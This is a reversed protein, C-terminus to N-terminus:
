VSVVTPLREIIATGPEHYQPLQKTGSDISFSEEKKSLKLMEQVSLRFVLRPDVSSLSPCGCDERLKIAKPILKNLHEVRHDNSPHTSFWEPIQFTGSVIKMLELQQWYVSSARVDTCAKAALRLGVEDAEIELKRSYPRDFMYQILKSQIWQGLVALSDRPFVAWILTLFVLSVFDLLQIISAHEAGHALLCHAMEHGLICALQDSDAIAKFLGTLVFVQGNPMVFANIEPDEVVNISWKTESVGPIDKNKEILQNFVFQTTEYMPDTVPLFKDKYNELVSQYEFEALQLFQRKSFMLLRNRGTIPSKDLHTWFYIATLSSLSCIGLVIRWRNRKVTDKLLEQKDPPLAQWWKRISRGLIMAILKKLPKLLIWLLPIPLALVRSSTHFHRALDAIEEAIFLKKSLICAPMYRSNSMRFLTSAKIDPVRKSALGAKHVVSRFTSNFRACPVLEMNYQVSARWVQSDGSSYGHRSFTTLSQIKIKSNRWMRTRESLASINQPSSCNRWTFLHKRADRLWFGTKM